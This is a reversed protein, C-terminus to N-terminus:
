LDLASGARCLRATVVVMVHRHHPVKSGYGALESKIWTLEKKELDLLIATEQCRYLLEETSISTNSIDNIISDLLEIARKKKDM